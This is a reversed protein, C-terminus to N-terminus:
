LRQVSKKVRCCTQLEAILNELHFKCYWINSMGRGRPRILSTPMDSRPESIDIGTCVALSRMRDSLHIIAPPLLLNPSGPLPLPPLYFCHDARIAEVETRNITSISSQPLRFPSYYQWRCLFVRLFLAAVGDVNRDGHPLM